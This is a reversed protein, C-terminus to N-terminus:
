GFRNGMYIRPNRKVEHTELRQVINDVVMHGYYQGMGDTGTAMNQQMSFRHYYCEDIRKKVYRPASVAINVPICWEEAPMGPFPKTWFELNEGVIEKHEATFEVHEKAKEYEERYDENFKERSPITRKPKLYRVNSNLMEQQSKQNKSEQDLKPAANTRDLTMSKIQEDFAEFQKEAKDLEKEALSSTPKPKDVM